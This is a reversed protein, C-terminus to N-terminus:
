TLGGLGRETTVEIGAGKLLAATVGDGPVLLGEFRGEHIQGVGCSPSTSKLIAQQIGLSQAVALAIRAGDLFNATLDVGESSLVRTEGALVASGDLGAQAAEIEAPPRPTPLGGAV